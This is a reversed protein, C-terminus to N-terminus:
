GSRPRSRTGPGLGLLRALLDFSAPTGPWATELRATGIRRGVFRLVIAAVIVDDLQGIGPLFDPIPDIPMALWLGLLLLAVKPGRPTAPDAILRRTLRLTDPLLRLAPGALERTPRHLWILLVAGLWLFVIVIVLALLAALWDM